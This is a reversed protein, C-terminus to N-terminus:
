VGDWDQFAVPTGLGRGNMEAERHREVGCLDGIRSLENLSVGSARMIGPTPPSPLVFTIPSLHCSLVCDPSM